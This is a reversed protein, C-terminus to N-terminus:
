YGGKKRARPEPAPPVIRGAKQPREPQQQRQLRKIAYLRAMSGGPTTAAQPIGQNTSDMM